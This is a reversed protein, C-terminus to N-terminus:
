VLRHPQRRLDGRHRQRSRHREQESWLRSLSARLDVGPRFLRLVQGRRGGAQRHGLGALHRDFRLLEVTQRGRQRLDRGSRGQKGNRMAEIEATYSTAVFLQVPCGLKDGILKSLDGYVPLMRQASEYPEVGFRVGDAPCDAARASAAVILAGSVVVLYLSSRMM